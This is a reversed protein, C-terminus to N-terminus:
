FKILGTGGQIEVKTGLAESMRQLRKLIRAAVEPKPTRPIGHQSMPADYGFEIPRILIQKIKGGDYDLQATVSEMSEMNKPDPHKTVAQPPWMDMNMETETTESYFQDLHNDTYRDPGAPTGWLQYIFSALSYFIPKGKYIEIGRLLHPGTAFFVDAGNDISKHALDVLFESPTEQLFDMHRLVNNYDHSHVTAIMFDSWEKGQRISRLNLRLDDANPYYNLGCPREGAEFMTTHVMQRKNPDGVKGYMREMLAKVESGDSTIDGAHEKTAKQAYDTEYQKIKKIGEFLEPPLVVSPTVRLFNIGAAGNRNGGQYAAMEMGTDASRSSQNDVRGNFSVTMAVLGIRGKPTELYQPARADELNFGTGAYTVGAQQLYENCKLMEDVGQDTSHNSSRAVVNFGLSKVDAAVEKCGMLGGIHARQNRYDGFNSEMNGVAVDSKKIPDLIARVEPDILHSIPNTQIIDGVVTLTFPAKIAPNAFHEERMKVIAPHDAIEPYKKEESM